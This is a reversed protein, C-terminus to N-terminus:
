TTTVPELCKYYIDVFVVCIIFLTEFMEEYTVPIWDVIM